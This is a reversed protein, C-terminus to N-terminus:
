RLMNLLDDTARFDSMELDFAIKQCTERSLVGKDRLHRILGITGTCKIPPVHCNVIKQLDPNNHLDSAIKRALYEDLVIYNDIGSYTMLISATITEIEGPGLTPNIRKILKKINVFKEDTKFAIPIGEISRILKENKSNKCEIVVAETIRVDYESKLFSLVDISKIEKGMSSIVSNDFIKIM